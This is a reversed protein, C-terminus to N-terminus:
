PVVMRKLGDITAWDKEATIGWWTLVAYMPRAITPARTVYDTAEDPLGHVRLVHLAFLSRSCVSVLNEVHYSALMDENITVVLINLKDVRTIGPTPPPRLKVRKITILEKTKKPIKGCTTINSVSKSM